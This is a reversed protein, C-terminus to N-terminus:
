EKIFQGKPIPQYARVYKAWPTKKHHNEGFYTMIVEFKSPDQFGPIPQILRFNEDMFVITPYSLRGRMIHAALEHYGRRGQKVFKYTKGDITVPETQEANFKVPYFNENLYKAIHAQGFTTKDMRKCWGCWSTYVDVFIKRKEVKSREVAEEWSLWEVTEVNETSSFRFSDTFSYISTLFIVLLVPFLFNKM